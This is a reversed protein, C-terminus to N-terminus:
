QADFTVVHQARERTSEVLQANTEDSGLSWRTAEELSYGLALRRDVLRQVREDHGVDIFWVETFCGALETWHLLYQARGHSAGSQMARQAGSVLGEVIVFSVAPVM